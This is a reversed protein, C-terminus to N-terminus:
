EDGKKPESYRDFLLRIAERNEPIEFLLEGEFADGRDMYFEDSRDIFLPSRSLPYYRKAQDDVLKFCRPVVPYGIKMRAEMVIKILVFKHGASPKGYFFYMYRVGREPVEWVVPHKLRDLWAPMEQLRKLSGGTVRMMEIGAYVLVVGVSALLVVRRIQRLLAQERKKPVSRLM